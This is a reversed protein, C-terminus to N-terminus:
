FVNLMSLMRPKRDLAASISSNLFSRIEKYQHDTIKLNDILKDQGSTLMRLLALTGGSIDRSPIDPQRCQPCLLVGQSVWFTYTTQPQIPTGCQCQDLIPLLGIQELLALEYLVLPKRLDPQHSILDLTHISRDFLPVHEDRESMLGDLLEAIYYGAYVRNLNHDAPRFRTVLQAETLLSLAEHKPLFVVRCHALLDLAGEFPGKLRKAGKALTSLKGFERTFLTVVKSTESFDAQRIVIADSKEAHSSAM